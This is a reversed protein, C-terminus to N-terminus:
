ALRAEQVFAAPGWCERIRAVVPATTFDERLLAFCASGSGSMCAALGSERRLKERLVPLAVFKAFAVEELNNFLLEEAPAAGQLWAALRAEAEPAPLYHRPAGRAMRDYAWPTSIAFGPKFLLVRRGRLRAAVAPLPEVREGRGRMVVPAHHLFLVCDSGLTASVETLRTESLRGGSLQNLARLTAVANSSGGGLGAGPPIRKTLKFHVGGTWGTVAAFTAAAKLVLNSGDRPVDPHDCELTFQEGSGATRERIEAALEDGFDLPAAVSVLDHYGDPRRGTVALFLNVKAPSFVTTGM